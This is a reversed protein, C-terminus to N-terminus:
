MNAGTLSKMNGIQRNGTNGYLYFGGIPANVPDKASFTM